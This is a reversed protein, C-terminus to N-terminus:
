AVTTYRLQHLGHRKLRLKCAENFALVGNSLEQFVRSVIPPPAKIGGAAHRTTITRCVRSIQAHVKDPMHQFFEM